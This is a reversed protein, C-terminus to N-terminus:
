MDVTVTVLLLSLHLCVAGKAQIFTKQPDFWRQEGSKEVDKVHTLKNALASFAWMNYTKDIKLKSIMNERLKETKKKWKRVAMNRKTVRQWQLGTRGGATWVPSHILKQRKPGRIAEHELETPKWTRQLRLSNKLTFLWLDSYLALKNGTLPDHESHLYQENIDTQWSINTIPSAINYM